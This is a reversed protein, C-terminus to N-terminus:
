FNGGPGNEGLVPSFSGAAFLFNRPMVNEGLTGLIYRSVVFFGLQHMKAWLAWFIGASFLFNKPPVNDGLIGFHVPQSYFNGLRYM